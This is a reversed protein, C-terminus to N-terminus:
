ENAQRVKGNSTIYVKSLRKTVIKYQVNQDCEFEVHAKSVARFNMAGRFVSDNHIQTSFTIKQEQRVFPNDKEGKQLRTLDITAKDPMDVVREADCVLAIKQVNTYDGTEEIKSASGQPRTMLIVDLVSGQPLLEAKVLTNAAADTWDQEEYFTPVQQSYVGSGNSFRSEVGETSRLITCVM